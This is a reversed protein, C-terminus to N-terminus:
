GATSPRANRLPQLHAADMRRAMPAILGLAVLCFAPGMPGVATYGTYGGFAQAIAGTVLSGLSMMALWVASCPVALRGSERETGVVDRARARADRM